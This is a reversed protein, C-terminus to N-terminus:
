RKFNFKEKEFATLTTLHALMYALSSEAGQNRNLGMYGLGDNCGKTEYDYLPVRLENEGLFWLFASFMRKLYFEDKTADYAKKYMIVMAMADIPQQSYRSREGGKKYWNKNGILSIHDDIYCISDLFKLANLGTKLIKDDELREYAYFLSAPLIGNDYALIPEFWYWEEKDDCNKEFENILKYALDRLVIRMGEDYPFRELYYSLGIITNAVGRISILKTFNPMAKEFMKRSIQFFADNPPTLLTFGLAWVSRGFADESGRDDLYHRDYSLFNRFWGDDNQMYLMYALYTSMLDLATKDKNRDYAKAMVLLARSNDDLCYGHTYDPINFRAHQIIGTSDTLHKIHTLNFKPLLTPDIIKEKKPRKKGLLKIAKEAVTIYKGAMLPWKTKLGYEFAKKRYKNLKDPHDLLDNLIRALAEHDGFDFLIGRGGDLIEQAHWYPTSIVCAGAGVAYALTGSTIQAENVYPTVYMDTASLYECLDNESLFNDIFVINNSVKLRNALRKLYNRYEEGSYKLVTPHTKGVILYTLEPHRNVVSPLAKIVNEIGKGSSILGFTMLIMKDDFHYKKKYFDHRSFDFDPIGHEIVTIKKAPIDYIEKLFKVATKSMVVIMDATRGIEQIIAKESFTPEKLVTHFTVILPVKLRHLLPLIYVGREGGFIGFEHELVCVDTDNYNIFDAAKLYDRQHNERITFKVIEPYNYGEDRDNMAIVYSSNEGQSNEFKKDLAKILSNTFTAIGCERPQYTSIFAFKM